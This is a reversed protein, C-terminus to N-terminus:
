SSQQLQDSEQIQASSYLLGSVIMLPFINSQSTYGSTLHFFAIAIIFLIGLICGLSAWQVDPSANSSYNSFLFKTLKLIALGWVLFGIFGYESLVAIIQNSITGISRRGQLFSSVSGAFFSRYVERAWENHKIFAAHRGITAYTSGYNGPGFGWIAYAPHSAFIKLLIIHSRIFGLRTINRMYLKTLMITNPSFYITLQYLGVFVVLVVLVFIIIRWYVTRGSLIMWFYFSIIGVSIVSAKEHAAIYTSIIFIAVFPLMVYKKKKNIYTLCFFIIIFIYNAFTHADQMLGAASDGYRNEIVYQSLQVTSNIIAIVFLIKLVEALYEEGLNLNMVILLVLFPRLLKYTVEFLGMLESNNLFGSVIGVITIIGIYPAFDIKTRRQTGGFLAYFLFAVVIVPEAAQLYSKPLHILHANDYAQSVNEWVFPWLLLVYLIVRKIVPIRTRLTPLKTSNYPISANNM